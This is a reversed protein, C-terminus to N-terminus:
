VNSPGRSLLYGAKMLEFRAEDKNRERAGTQVRSLQVRPDGDGPINSTM